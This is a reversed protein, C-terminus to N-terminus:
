RMLKYVKGGFYQSGIKKELYNSLDSLKKIDLGTDYGMSEMLYAVDETAINGKSNKIFPSGGIGGLSADIEKIGFDLASFLNVLGLGNTNHLHISIQLDPFLSLVEDLLESIRKPNAMGPTDCLSIRNVGMGVIKRLHEIVILQDYDNNGDYGWVCQLGARIKMSNERALEVISKLNIMSESVSMALNKKSYKDNISISTEVKNLDCSLAREVGRVNFVLGSYEVGNKKDLRKVLDEAIAMQPVRKPDVFSAVQIKDIGAEILGEIIFLRDKISLNEKVNQLGDRLGVELIDVINNM